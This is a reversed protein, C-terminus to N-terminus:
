IYENISDKIISQVNIGKISPIHQQKIIYAKLQDYVVMNCNSSAHWFTLDGAHKIAFGLHSIDLNTGIKSKLEWNPRVINVISVPPFYKILEDYHNLVALNDIYPIKVTAPPLLTKKLHHTKFFWNDKDIVTTSIKTQHIDSTIDMLYDKSHALWDLTIFHNRTIFDHSSDFYRIKMLKKEFDKQFNELTSLDKVFLLALVVEVMTVCDFHILSYTKLNDEMSYPLGLFSELVSLLRYQPLYHRTAKILNYINTLVQM